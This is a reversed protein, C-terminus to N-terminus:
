LVFTDVALALHLHSRHLCACFALADVLWYERGFVQDTPRLHSPQGIAVKCMYTTYPKVRYQATIGSGEFHILSDRFLLPSLKHRPNRRSGHSSCTSSECCPRVTHAFSTSRRCPTCWRYDVCHNGNGSAIRIGRTLKSSAHGM